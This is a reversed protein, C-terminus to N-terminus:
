SSGGGGGVVVAAGVAAGAHSTGMENLWGQSCLPSLMMSPTQMKLIVLARCFNLMLISRLLSVYSM